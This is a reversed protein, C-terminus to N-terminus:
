SDADDDVGTGPIDDFVLDILSPTDEFSGECMQALFLTRGETLVAHRSEIFEAIHDDRLLAPEPENTAHALLV